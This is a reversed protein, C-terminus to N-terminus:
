KLSISKLNRNAIIQLENRPIEPPNYANIPAKKKKNELVRGM